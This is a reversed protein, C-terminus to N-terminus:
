ETARGDDDIARDLIAQAEEIKRLAQHEAAKLRLIRMGREIPIEKGGLTAHSGYKSFHMRLEAM